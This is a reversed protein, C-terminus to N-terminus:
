PSFGVAKSPVLEWLAVDGTRDIERWNGPLNKKVEEREFPALLAYWRYGRSETADRLEGLRAGDLMNWMAYTRDTYYHLAGSMQMSIVIANPALRRRAMGCADPYVRDGKYTKHPEVRAIFRIEVALAVLVFATAGAARLLAGRGTWQEDLRLVDRLVLLSGLALAPIGPLLFRTYWWTGYVAYFCYFVFFSAFWALLLARDRSPVRRAFALALWGLPLLPSLTRSLWLTYDAARPGFHSWALGESLLSRYGTRLPSGFAADNYILLFAAFPTGGLVFLGWSKPRAPLALLLAPLLLANMPRVLVGV